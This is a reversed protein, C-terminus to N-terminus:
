FCSKYLHKFQGLMAVAYLSANLSNWIQTGKYYFSNKGYNTRVRPVFLRHINRGVHSTVTTVYNSTARLYGPSLQHLIKYVIIATHFRRRKALTRYLETIVESTGAHVCTLVICTCHIGKMHKHTGRKNMGHLTCKAHFVRVIHPLECAYV